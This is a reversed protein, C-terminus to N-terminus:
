SGKNRKIQIVNFDSIIDSERLIIKKIMNRDWSKSKRPKIKRETLEDRIEFIRRGQKWLSVILQVVPYEKPDKVLEGQFVYYGYNPSVKSKKLREKWM